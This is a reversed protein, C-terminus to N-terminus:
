PGIPNWVCAASWVGFDLSIMLSADNSAYGQAFMRYRGRAIKKRESVARPRVPGIHVQCGPTAAAGSVYPADFLRDCGVNTLFGDVGNQNPNSLDVEVDVNNLDIDRFVTGGCCPLEINRQAGGTSAPAPLFLHQQLRLGCPSTGCGSLFACALLAAGILGAHAV